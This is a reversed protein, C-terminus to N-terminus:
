GFGGGMMEKGYVRVECCGGSGCEGVRYVRRLLCWWSPGRRWLGRCSIRALTSVVVVAGPLVDWARYDQCSLKCLGRGRKIDGRAEAGSVIARSM